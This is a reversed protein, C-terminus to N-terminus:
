SAARSAARIVDEEHDENMQQEVANYHQHAKTLLKEHWVEFSVLYEGTERCLVCPWRCMLWRRPESDNIIFATCMHVALM